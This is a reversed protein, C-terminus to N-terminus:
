EQAELVEENESVEEELVSENKQSSEMEEQFMEETEEDIGIEKDLNIIEKEKKEEKELGELVNIKKHQKRKEM